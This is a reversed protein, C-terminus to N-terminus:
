IQNWHIKENLIFTQAYPFIIVLIKKMQYVKNEWKMFEMLIGIFALNKMRLFCM